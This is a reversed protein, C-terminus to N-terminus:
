FLDIDEYFPRYYENSKDPIATFIIGNHKQEMNNVESKLLSQIVTKLLGVIAWNMERKMVIKLVHM